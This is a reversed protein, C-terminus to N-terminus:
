DVQFSLTVDLSTACFELRREKRVIQHCHHIVWLVTDRLAKPVVIKDEYILLKEAVSLRLRVSHLNKLDSTM